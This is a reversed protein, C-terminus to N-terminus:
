LRFDLTVLGVVTGIEFARKNEEWGPKKSLKTELLKLIDDTRCIGQVELEKALVGLFFINQNTTQIQDTAFKEKYDAIDIVTMGLPPRRLRGSDLFRKVKSGFSEEVVAEKPRGETPIVFSQYGTTRERAQESMILLIDPKTFKPYGIEQDSMQIFALSVGGRQELGFNPIFSVYHGAEFVAKCIIDAITQIGQGGDGALLFKLHM